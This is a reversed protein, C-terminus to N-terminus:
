FSLFTNCVLSGFSEIFILLIVRQVVYNGRCRLEYQTAADEFIVDLGSNRSLLGKVLQLLESTWYQLRKIWEIKFTDRERLSNYLINVVNMIKDFLNQFIWWSSNSAQRPNRVNDYEKIETCHREIWRLVNEIWLWRTSLVLPCKEITKTIVHKQRRLYSDLYTLQDYLLEMAHSFFASAFGFRTPTSQM